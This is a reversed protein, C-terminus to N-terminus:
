DPIKCNNKKQWNRMEQAHELAKLVLKMNGGSAQLASAWNELMSPALSDQARLIFVPEDENIVCKIDQIHEYKETMHKM